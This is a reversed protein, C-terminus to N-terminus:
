GLSRAFKLGETSGTGVDSVGSAESGDSRMWGAPVRGALEMELALEAWCPWLFLLGRIGENDMRDRPREEDDAVEEDGTRLFGKGDVAEGKAVLNEEPSCRAAVSSSGSCVKERGYETSLGVRWSNGGV